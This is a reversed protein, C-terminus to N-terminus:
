LMFCLSNESFKSLHNHLKTYINLKPWYFLVALAFFFLFVFVNEVNMKIEEPGSFFISHSGWSDFPSLNNWECNKVCKCWTRSTQILTLVKTIWISSHKTFSKWLGIVHIHICCLKAQYYSNIKFGFITNNLFKSCTFLTRVDRVSILFIHQGCICM